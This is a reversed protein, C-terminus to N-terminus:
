SPGRDVAGSALPRTAPAPREVTTSEIPAVPEPPTSIVRAPPPPVDLAVVAPAAVPKTRACGARSWCPVRRRHRPRALLPATRDLQHTEVNGRETTM